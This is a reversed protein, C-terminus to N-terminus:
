DSVTASHSGTQLEKTSKRTVFNLKFQVKEFSMEFSLAYEFNQSCTM